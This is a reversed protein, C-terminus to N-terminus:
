LLCYGFYFGYGSLKRVTQVYASEHVDLKGDLVSFYPHDLHVWAGRARHWEDRLGYAPRQSARRRTDHGAFRYAFCSMSLWIYQYDAEAVITDGPRLENVDLSNVAEQMLEDDGIFRLRIDQKPSSVAERVVKLGVLNEAQLLCAFLFLIPLIHKM